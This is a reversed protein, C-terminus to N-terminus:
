SAQDRRAISTPLGVTTIAALHASGRADRAAGDGPPASHRARGRCRSPASVQSCRWRGGDVAGILQTAAAVYEDLGDIEAFMRRGHMHGCEIYAQAAYHPEMRKRASDWM